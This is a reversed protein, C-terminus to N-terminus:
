LNIKIKQSTTPEFRQELKSKREGFNTLIYTNVYLLHLLM